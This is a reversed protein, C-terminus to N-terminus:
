IATENVFSVTLSYNNYDFEKDSDKSYRNNIISQQFIRDILYINLYIKHSLAASNTLVGLLWFGPNPNSKWFSLVHLSNM